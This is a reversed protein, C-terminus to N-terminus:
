RLLHTVGKCMTAGIIATGPAIGFGANSQRMPSQRNDIKRGGAMLRHDGIVAAEDDCEITLNVIELLKARLKFRASDPKASMGVGLHHQLSESGVANRCRDLAENTHEADAHPIASVPRQRQYAVSKAYFGQIPRFKAPKEKESGFKFGQTGM